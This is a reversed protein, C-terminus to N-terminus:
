TFASVIKSLRLLNSIYGGLCPISEEFGPTQPKRGINLWVKDTTPYTVTLESPYTAQVALDESRFTEKTIGRPLKFRQQVSCLTIFFNAM